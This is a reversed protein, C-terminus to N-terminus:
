HQTDPNISVTVLTLSAFALFIRVRGYPIVNARLLLTRKWAAAYRIAPGLFGAYRNEITDKFYATVLHPITLSM